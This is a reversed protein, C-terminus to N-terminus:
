TGSTVAVGAAQEIAAARARQLATLQSQEASMGAIACAAEAQIGKKVEGTRPAKEAALVPGSVSIFAIFFLFIISFRDPM